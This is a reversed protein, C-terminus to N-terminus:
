AVQGIYLGCAETTPKELGAIAMAWLTEDYTLTSATRVPSPTLGVLQRIGNDSAPLQFFLAASKAAVGGYNNLSPAKIVTDIGLQRFLEGAAANAQGLAAFLASGTLSGGASINNKPLLKRLLDTGILVANPDGGRDANAAQFSLVGAMLDEYADELSTGTSGMNVSSTYTPINLQGIGVLDTDTFSNVIAYERADDLAQKAARAKEESADLGSNAGYLLLDWPMQTKVCFFHSQVNKAGVEYDAVPVQTQGPKWPAVSGTQRVGRTQVLQMGADYSRVTLTASVANLPAPQRAIGGSRDILEGPFFYSDNRTWGDVVISNGDERYGLGSAIAEMLEFRRKDSVDGRIGTKKAQAFIDDVFARVMARGAAVHPASRRKSDSRISEGHRAQANNLENAIALPSVGNQGNAIFVSM